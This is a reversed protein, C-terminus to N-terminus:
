NENTRAFSIERCLRMTANKKLEEQLQEETEFTIMTGYHKELENMLEVLALNRRYSGKQNKLESFDAEIENLMRKLM